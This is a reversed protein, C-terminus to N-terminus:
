LGAAVISAFRTAFPPTNMLNSVIFIHEYALKMPVHRRLEDSQEKCVRVECSSGVAYNVAYDVMAQYDPDGSLGAQAVFLPNTTADTICGTKAFAEIVKLDGSDISLTTM